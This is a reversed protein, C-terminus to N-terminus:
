SKGRLLYALLILAALVVGAGAGLIGGGMAFIGATAVRSGFFGDYTALGFLAGCVAGFLATVLIATVAARM